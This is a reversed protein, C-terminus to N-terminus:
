VRTHPIDRPIFYVNPPLDASREQFMQEVTDVKSYPNFVDQKHRGHLVDLLDQVTLCNTLDVNSIRRGCAAMSGRVIKFKFSPSALEISKWGEPSNLEVHQEVVQQVTKDILEAPIPEPPSREPTRNSEESEESEDVAALPLGLAEGTTTANETNKFADLLGLTPAATHLAAAQRNISALLRQSPSNLAFAPISARLAASPKARRAARASLHISSRLFRM